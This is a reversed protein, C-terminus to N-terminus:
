KGGALRPTLMWKLVGRPPGDKPEVDIRILGSKKLDLALPAELLLAALRTLQPEHGAVMVAKAKQVARIERLVQAPQVDPLLSRTEILRDCELVKAAMRATDLARTWPSTLIADPRVGAKRAQRLVAKLELKGEQTLQRAAEHVGPGRPEAAAHRLIYVKM